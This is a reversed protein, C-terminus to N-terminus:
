WKAPGVACDIGGRGGGGGDGGGRGAFPPGSGFPEFLLPAFKGFLLPGLLALVLPERNGELM